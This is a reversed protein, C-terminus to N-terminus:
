VIMQGALIIAGISKSPCTFVEKHNKRKLHYPLPSPRKPIPSSPFAMPNSSTFSPKFRPLFGIKISRCIAYLTSSVMKIPLVFASLNKKVISSGFYTDYSTQLYFDYEQNSSSENDMLHVPALLAEKVHFSDEDFHVKCKQKRKKRELWEM